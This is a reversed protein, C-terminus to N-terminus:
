DNLGLDLHGEGFALDRGKGGGLSGAFCRRGAGCGMGWILVASPSTPPSSCTGAHVAGQNERPRPSPAAHGLPHGLQTGAKLFLTVLPVSPM